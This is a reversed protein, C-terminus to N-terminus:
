DPRVGAARALPAWKATESRLHDALEGPTSPATEIGRELLTQRVDPDALASVLAKHWRDVISQPLQAPGVFCYWNTSEYGPLASEAVTPVEPLAQARRNGTVALARARGQKVYPVATSIVAVFVQVQGALFDTMAPGGGRYPIHVWDIGAMNKLLEGSLHGPTGAGSTAYNLAGPRAKAAAILEPISSVALSPHAIFINQLEVVRAIPTFDRAPDYPVKSIAPSIVLAGLTALHLTYGDAPAKATLDAGVIGNAGARNDVIIERKMEQALRPQLIRAVLDTAGGPPFGVIIRVPKAPYHQAPANACFLALLLLGASRLANM